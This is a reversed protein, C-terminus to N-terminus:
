FSSKELVLGNESFRLASANDTADFTNMPDCGRRIYCSKGLQSQTKLESQGCVPLPERDTGPLAGVTTPAAEWDEGVRRNIARM